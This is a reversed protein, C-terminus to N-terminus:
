KRGTIKQRITPQLHLWQAIMTFIITFMMEIIKSPIALKTIATMM